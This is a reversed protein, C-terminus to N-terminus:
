HQWTKTKGWYHIITRLSSWLITVLWCLWFYIQFSNWGSKCYRSAVTCQFRKHLVPVPLHIEFLLKMRVHHGLLFFSIIHWDILVASWAFLLHAGSDKCRYHYISYEWDSVDILETISSLLYFRTAVRVANFYKVTTDLSSPSSRIISFVSRSWHPSSNKGLTNPFTNEFLRAIDPDKLRAKM